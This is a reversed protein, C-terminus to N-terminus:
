CSLPLSSRHRCRDLSGRNSRSARRAGQVPGCVYVTRNQECRFRVSHEFQVNINSVSCIQGAGGICLSCDATQLLAPSPDHVRDCHNITTSSRPDRSRTETNDKKQRHNGNAPNKKKIWPKDTKLCNVRREWPM